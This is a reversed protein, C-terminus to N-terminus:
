AYLLALLGPLLLVLHQPVLHSGPVCPLAVPEGLQLSLVLTRSGIDGGRWLSVAGVLALPTMVSLLYLFPRGIPAFERFFIRHSQNMM